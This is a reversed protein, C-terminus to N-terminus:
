NLEQEPIEPVVIYDDDLVPAQKIIDDSFSYPNWVDDRAPASLEHTYAIGHTTIQIQDDISIAELEHIAKLQNNLERRLYEAEDVDLELAALEVLHKFVEQSITDAM